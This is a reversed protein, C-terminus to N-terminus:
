DIACVKVLNTSGPTGFPFGAIAVVRDGSAAIGARRVLRAVTDDIEEIAFADRDIVPMVGWMLTVRGAIREDPVVAAIPVPPRERSARAATTGTTTFAVLAKASIEAALSVAAATVAHPVTMQHGPPTVALQRRFDPHHETSRIIRDMVSVSEVPYSGAATEASLMVADAGGLVAASVDSAEARTPVPRSVMSDLMQTAVIAPKGARRCEALIDRQHNPVDEAPMEVGLDGRAVMISDALTVIERLHRIAGPKEIKACIAARGDIAAIADLLDGPRQVFSLAVWDVGLECGFALDKRDKETLAPVQLDTDPVNVGKRASLPGGVLVETAIADAGISVVKLELRGDDLLIRQGPLLAAFLEPHPLGARSADAPSASLDLGFRSGAKLTVDPGCDGIRFKPGQLDQLIALRRGKRRELRRIVDYRARHEDHTGHSFNLRFVDVGADVLAELVAPDASAPGVTAVIRTARGAGSTRNGAM